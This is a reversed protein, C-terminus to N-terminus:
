FTELFLTFGEFGLSEIYAIGQQRLFEFDLDDKSATDKAISIHEKFSLM